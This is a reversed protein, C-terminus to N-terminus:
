WVALAAELSGSSEETRNRVGFDRRGSAPLVVDQNDRGVSREVSPARILAM